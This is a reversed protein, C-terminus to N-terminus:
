TVATAASARLMNKKWRPGVSKVLVCGSCNSGMTRYSRRDRPKLPAKPRPSKMTGCPRYTSWWPMSQAVSTAVCWTSLSSGPLPPRTTSLSPSPRAAVPCELKLLGVSTATSRADPSTYTASPYPLERMTTKELAPAYRRSHPEAPVPLPSNRTGCLM